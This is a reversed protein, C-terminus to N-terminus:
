RLVDDERRGRTEDRQKFCDGIAPALQRERVVGLFNPVERFVKLRDELYMLAFASFVIDVSNEAFPSLNAIDHKLFEVEVGHEAALKRAFALQGEAFDIGTVRAGRLAFAISCQGGGCGLELVRKGALDGLLKLDDENPSSPGYHIDVSIKRERESLRENAFAKAVSVATETRAAASPKALLREYHARM